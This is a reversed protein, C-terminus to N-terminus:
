ACRLANINAVFARTAFNLNAVTPRVLVVKAGRKARAAEEPTLRATYTTTTGDNYLVTTQFMKMLTYASWANSVESRLSKGEAYAIMVAIARLLGNYNKRRQSPVTNSTIEVEEPEDTSLGIASLDCLKPQQTRLIIYQDNLLLLGKNTGNDVCETTDPYDGPPMLVASVVADCRVSSARELARSVLRTIKKRKKQITASKDLSIHRITTRLTGLM